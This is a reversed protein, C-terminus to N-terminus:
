DKRGSHSASDVIMWSPAVWADPMGRFSTSKEGELPIISPGYIAEMRKIVTEVIRCLVLRNSVVMSACLLSVVYKPNVFESPACAVLVDIVTRWGMPEIRNQFGATRAPIHAALAALVTTLYNAIVATIYPVYFPPEPDEEDYDLDVGTYMPEEDDVSDGEAVPIPFDSPSRGKMHQAVIVAVEDELSWEPVVVDELLLPWRTWHDRKPKKPGPGAVAKQKGRAKASKPRDPIVSVSQSKSGSAIASPPRSLERSEPKLVDDDTLDDGSDFETDDHTTNVAFPNPQTIHKTVDLTDRVRLARLLSAYEALEHHLKAPVRKSM